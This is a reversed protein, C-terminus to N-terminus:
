HGIESYSVVVVKTVLFVEVATSNNTHVFHLLWMRKSFRGISLEFSFLGFSVSSGLIVPSLFSPSDYLVRLRSVQFLQRFQYEMSDMNFFVQMTIILELKIKNDMRRNLKLGVKTM